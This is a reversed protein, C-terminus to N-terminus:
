RSFIHWPVSDHILDPPCAIYVTVINCVLLDRLRYDVIDKTEPRVWLKRRKEEVSKVMFADLEQIAIQLSQVHEPSLSLDGTVTLRTSKQM